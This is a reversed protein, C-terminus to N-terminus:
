RRSIQVNDPELLPYDDAHEWFNCLVRMSKIEDETIVNAFYHTADKLNAAMRWCSLVYFCAQDRAQEFLAVLQDVALPGTTKRRVALDRQRVAEDLRAWVREVTRAHLVVRSWRDIESM